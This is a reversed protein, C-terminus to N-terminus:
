TSRAQATRDGRMTRLQFGEFDDPTAETLQLAQEYHNIAQQAHGRAEHVMVSRIIWDIIEPIRLRLEQCAAEAEDSRGEDTSYAVHRSNTM